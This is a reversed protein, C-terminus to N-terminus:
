SRWIKCQQNKENEYCSKYGLQLAYRMQDRAEHSTQINNCDASYCRISYEDLMENRGFDPSVLSVASKAKSM